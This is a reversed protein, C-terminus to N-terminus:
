WQSEGTTLPVLNDSLFDTLARLSSLMRHRSLYVAYASLGEVQFEPVLCVLRGKALNITRDVIQLDIVVGPFQELFAMLADALCYKTFISLASVRLLSKPTSEADAGLTSADQSLVLMQKCDPLVEEGPATLSLKRTTRHLLRAGVWEVMLGVYRTAM